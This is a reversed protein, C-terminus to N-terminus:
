SFFGYKARLITVFYLHLLRRWLATGFQDHRDHCGVTSLAIGATERYLADDGVVRNLLVRHSELLHKVYVDDRIAYYKYFEITEHAFSTRIDLIQCFKVMESRAYEWKEDHVGEKTHALKRDKLRSQAFLATVFSKAANLVQESDYEPFLSQFVFSFHLTSTDFEDRDQAIYGDVMNNAAKASIEELTELSPTSRSHHSVRLEGSSRTKSIQESLALLAVIWGKSENLKLYTGLNYDDGVKRM